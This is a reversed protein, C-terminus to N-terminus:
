SPLGILKNFIFSYRYAADYSRAACLDLFTVYDAKVSFLYFRLFILNNKCIILRNANYAGFVVNM